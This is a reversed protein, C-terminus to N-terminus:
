YPRAPARYRPLSGTMWGYSWADVVITRSRRRGASRTAIGL